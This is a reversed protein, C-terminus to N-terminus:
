SKKGGHTLAPIDPASLLKTVAAFPREAFVNTQPLNGPFITETEV